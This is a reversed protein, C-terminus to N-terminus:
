GLRQVDNRNALLLINEAFVKALEETDFTKRFRFECGVDPIVTVVWRSSNNGGFTVSHPRIPTSTNKEQDILTLHNEGNTHLLDAKDFYQFNDDM